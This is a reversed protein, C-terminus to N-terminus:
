NNKIYKKRQEDEYKTTDIKFTVLTLFEMISMKNMIYNLDFRTMKIIEPIFTFLGWKDM